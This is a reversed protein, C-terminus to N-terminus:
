ARDLLHGVAQTFRAAVSASSYNAVVRERGAAGMRARLDPQELLMQVYRAIAADDGPDALFGTEGHVITESPGGRRTSVVPRACAMAEVLSVGYSEFQSACVVIDSCALLQPVDDVFGLYIMCRSLVPDAQWAALIRDRYASEAAVGHVSDGAVLFHAAPVAQAVRRAAAQFVEHGKVSQFRAIMTVVPTDPPIGHQARLRHCTVVPHFRNTDVAPPLITMQTAPMFPPSGLFGDRVARSVAFAEDPQTFFRRQWPLPRFWWGHCTWCVPIGAARAAPLIFPLAHYDSHVVDIAQERMVQAFRSVAPFRRWLAPVFWRSAGRFPVVHVPWGAAAWREALQGSRPALLHPMFRDGDLAGALALLSTEGGGLGTYWTAFLLNRKKM